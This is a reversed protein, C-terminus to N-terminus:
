SARDVPWRRSALDRGIENHPHVPPGPFAAFTVRDARLQLPVPTLCELVSTFGADALANALAPRTFWFSQVNDLSAGPDALKEAPSAGPAHERYMSGGYRGGGEDVFIEAELAIRTDVITIGACMRRMQRLLALAADAELHYLIGSCLIVDFRGLQELTVDRVDGLVVDLTTLALARRGFDAKAVNGPRGEIGIVEAGQQAFEIAYLGEGCGLDLVRMGTLPRRLLDVTLQLFKVIRHNDGRPAADITFQGYPLAVNHSGWPGHAQVIAAHEAKLTELDM